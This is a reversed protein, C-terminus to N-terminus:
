YTQDAFYKTKLKYELNITRASKSDFIKFIKIFPFIRFFQANCHLRHANSNPVVYYTVCMSPFHM